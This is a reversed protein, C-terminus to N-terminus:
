EEEDVSNSTLGPIEHKSSIIGRSDGVNATYLKGEYVMFLVITTGSNATDFPLEPDMLDKECEQITKELFEKPGQRVFGRQNFNNLIIKLCNEAVKQGEKGHGDCL